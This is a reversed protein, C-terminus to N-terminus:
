GRVRNGLLRLGMMVVLLTGGEHAIVGIPLPIKGLLSLVGVVGIVSFAFLLNFYVTQQTAKALAIAGTLRSLDNKMLVLDASELAVDTGSAMSIGVDAAVLAPADNVGDGVMAVRGERRLEAIVELKHEPLLEARVESVGV